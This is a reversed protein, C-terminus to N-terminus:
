PFRIKLLDASVFRKNGSYHGAPIEALLIVDPFGAILRIGIQFATTDFFHNIDGYSNIQKGNFILPASPEGARAM